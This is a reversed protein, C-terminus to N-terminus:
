MGCASAVAMLKRAGSSTSDSAGQIRLSGARRDRKTAAPMAKTPTIMTIRGPPPRCGIPVTKPRSVAQQKAACNMAVRRTAPSSGNVESIQLPATPVAQRVSARGKM